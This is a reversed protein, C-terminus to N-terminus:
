EMKLFKTEIRKGDSEISMLYIGTQWESIDLRKTNNGGSSQMREQHIIRGRMDYVILSSLGTIDSNYSLEIYDTAPVPRVYNMVFRSSKAIPQTTYSGKRIGSCPTGCELGTLADTYNIQLNLDYQLLQQAEGDIVLFYEGNPLTGSQMCLKADDSNTYGAMVATATSSNCVTPVVYAFLRNGNTGATAINTLNVAVNAKCTQVPIGLMYLQNEALQLLEDLPPGFPGLEQLSDILADIQEIVTVTVHNALPVALDCLQVVLPDAGPVTIVLSRLPCIRNLLDIVEDRISAHEAIATDPASNIYFKYIAKNNFVKDIIAAGSEGSCDPQFQGQAGALATMKLPKTTDPEIAATGGNGVWINGTLGANTLAAYSVDVNRNPVNDECGIDIAQSCLDASIGDVSYGNVPAAELVLNFIGPEPPVTTMSADIFMRPYQAIRLYYTDDPLGSLDLRPQTLSSYKSKDRAGGHSNRGDGVSCDILTLGNVVQVSDGCNSVTPTGSYLSAVYEIGGSNTSAPFANIWANPNTNNKTFKFWVGYAGPKGQTTLLVNLCDDDGSGVVDLRPENNSDTNDCGLGGLPNFIYASSAFPNSASISNMLSTIDLANVACDNAPTENKYVNICFNGQTQEYGDVLVYYTTSAALEATISPALGNEYGADDNCWVYTFAGCTGELLKLQADMELGNNGNDTSVTYVGATTTTFTYWVSADPTNSSVWTCTDCAAKDISASETTAGVNHGMTCEVGLQLAIADACDDNVPAPQNEDPEGPEPIFTVGGTMIPTGTLDYQIVDFGCKNGSSPALPNTNFFTFFVKVARSEYGDLDFNGIWADRKLLKISTITTDISDGNVLMQEALTVPEVGEGYYGGYKWKDFIAKGLNIIVPLTDTCNEQVVFRLMTPAPAANTNRVVFASGQVTAPPDNVPDIITINRWAINNNERTNYPLNSTEPTHMGFPATSSTTIRALLCFHARDAGFCSYKRPDPPYWPIQMIVAEDAQLVPIRLKADDYIPPSIISEHKADKSTSEPNTPGMWPFIASNGTWPEMHMNLSANEKEDGYIANDDLREPKKRQWEAFVKDVNSHLLFVFPDQFSTLHGMITGGIYNHAANHNIELANRFDKYSNNSIIISDTNISPAGSPCGSGKVRRIIPGDTSFTTAFPADVTDCSDGMFQDIFLNIASNVGDTTNRPDTTWNWYPLKIGPEVERLLNEFRNTLERHWPLFVPQGHLHSNSEHIEDQKDWWSVGDGYNQQDLDLIADRLKNREVVSLSAVNKRPKTIEEAMFLQENCGAPQEFHDEWQASWGLNTSAKAWYLHLEETGLSAANGKNIVLVYVWNPRSLRSPVYQPNQHKGAGGNWDRPRPGIFNFYPFPYPSYNPDPERSVWIFPSKWMNESTPNEETGDDSINDPIYLDAQAWVKGAMLLSFLFIKWFAAFTKM